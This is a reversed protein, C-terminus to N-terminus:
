LGLPMVPGSPHCADHVSSPRSSRSAHRTHSAPRSSLGFWPALFCIHKTGQLIGELFEDSMTSCPHTTPGSELGRSSLVRNHFRHVPSLWPVSPIMLPGDFRGPDQTDFLAGTAGDEPFRPHMEPDLPHGGRHSNEVEMASLSQCISPTPINNKTAVRPSNPIFARSARSFDPKEAPDV